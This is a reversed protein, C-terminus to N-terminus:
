VPVPISDVVERLIQESQETRKLNSLYRASVVLRHAFTPVALKKFDDPICFARGELLAMAQAARYLMLAGRPSVGLSLQEHERTREVIALAYDILSDEVRITAVEDQLAIVEPGTLVPRLDDLRM